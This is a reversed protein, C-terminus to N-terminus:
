NIILELLVHLLHSLELLVLIGWLVCVLQPYDSFTPTQIAVQLPQAVLASSHQQVTVLPHRAALLAINVLLVLCM